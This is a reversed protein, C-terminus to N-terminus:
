AYHFKIWLERVSVLGQQALWKNTMGSQTALTRALRYPGKSSLGLSVATRTRTGLKILNRIRTRPKHWQKLYCMRLRRRIWEDLRPLPRYYESLGYYNIWGQIYLRLERYRRQMSIGWSRKTLRRINYKFDNLAKDSWRIKKGKFTFGLFHLENTKVVKSKGENVVLKLKTSLFRKVWQMVRHGASTSRVCITFDDAYRAFRLARSELLKDLDDLVVNALLPSLPGGQPVGEPTPHCVGDIAVGARLYRGILKLLRKDTIHRSLRSMLIDHNVRDFFKSLDVDVAVKYGAEIFGKVQRVAGHANRGPRFGHSSESFSPDIIPNLVQAIAQQIVRDNVTPIGLSRSGGNPKPIEVRAVPQPIYYGGELARRTAAWHKRAWLPYDEISVGDVGPAGKNGKVQKWAAHLNEPSLIREMLNDNLAPQQSEGGTASKENTM